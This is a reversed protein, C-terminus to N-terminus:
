FRWGFALLDQGRNPRKIGANSWHRIGISFHEGFRYKIGLMYGLESGILRDDTNVWYAAGISIESPAIKWWTEPKSAVFVAFVNGNNSTVKDNWEQEGILAIGIDIKGDLIRESLTLGIGGNFEGTYAPGVEIETAYAKYASFLLIIGLLVFVITKPNDFPLKWNM